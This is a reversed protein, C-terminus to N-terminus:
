APAIAIEVRAAGAVRLPFDVYRSSEVQISTHAEPRGDIRVGTARV